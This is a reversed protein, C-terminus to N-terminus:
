VNEVVAVFVVFAGIVNVAGLLIVTVIVTPPTVQIFVNPGVIFGVGSMAFSAVVIQLPCDKVTEGEKAEGFIM